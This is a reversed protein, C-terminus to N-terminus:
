LICFKIFILRMLGMTSMDMSYNVRLLLNKAVFLIICVHTCSVHGLEIYFWIFILRFHM